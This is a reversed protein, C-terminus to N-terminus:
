GALGRSQSFPKVNPAKPLGSLKAVAEGARTILVEEGQLALEILRPLEAQTQELTARM